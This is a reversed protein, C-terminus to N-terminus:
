RKERRDKWAKLYRAARPNTEDWKPEVPDDALALLARAVMRDIRAMNAYDVKDWHDAAGHYDPYQFAVCLTHAPVGLDALAQNDSRGFYTTATGPTASWRGDRRARRLRRLGELRRLLRVRDPRGVTSGRVRRTTPGASRNSTSTPWRGTSRSWPTGATTAELRAAGEGRRLLHRLPHEAEASGQPHGPGLRDRHGLRHRFRRRQGRQLDPRSREAGRVGIHDYHATVM